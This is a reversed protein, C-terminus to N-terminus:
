TITVSKEPKGNADMLILALDYFDNSKHFYSERLETMKIQLLATLSGQNYDIGHCLDSSPGISVATGSFVSFWTLEGTNSM